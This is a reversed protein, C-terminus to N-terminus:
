SSHLTTCYLKYYEHTMANATLKNKYTTFANQSISNRKDPDNILKNINKILGNIDELDFILGNKNHHIFDPISGVPTTVIAKAKAMAELLVMPLGEIESTILFIDFKKIFNITDERYGLLFVTNELSLEKIKYSLEDRLKGDGIIIFKINSNNNSIKLKQALNIIIDFRKQKNLRGVSGIIFDSNTIGISKFYDNTEEQDYFNYYNINIGNYILKVNRKIKQEIEDKIPKSVAIVESAKLMCIKELYHYFQLKLSGKNYWLHCTVVLKASTIKSILFGIISPKYGHSHIINIDYKKIYKILEKIFQLDFKRKSNFTYYNVYNIILKQIFNDSNQFESIIGVHNNCNFNKLQISLNLVVNEAGYFGSPDILHLINPTNFNSSNNDM